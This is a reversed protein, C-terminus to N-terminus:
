PEVIGLPTRTKWTGRTFDPFDVPRSKNAVSIESMEVIASWAAADYVDLDLPEGNNLCKILRYDELYDMGGHGIQSNEKGIEKWLPHEYKEYWKDPEDWRHGESIGEVHVRAPYKEAIGGTGQIVHKRSYPRPNSCDHYLTISKGKKTKILSVNVDGLKYKLNKRPDDDPLHEKVFLGMGAQKTSMSVLYDFADGRNINMCQAVPGLGHTPYLNADRKVSHNYRWIGEGRNSFKVGRLDHLYGCEGHLLEGFLGNRVMNLTMMEFRDYCCNEMMVAYKKTKDQTEVLQWCEDITIAAPVETAAHKGTNMAEVCVPVHWIWPTATYVLDIDDRECLRKFDYEGKTYGDPVPKGEDKFKKQWREVKAPVIDCLAVIECGEIRMLNAVHASGMGGVGVYGIRVNKIPKATFVVPASTLKQSSCGSGTFGSLAAGIGAATGIKLFERRSHQNVSNKIKKSM